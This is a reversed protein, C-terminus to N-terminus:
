KKGKGNAPLVTPTDTAPTGNGPESPTEAEVSFLDAETLTYATPLPMGWGMSAIFKETMEPNLKGLDSERMAQAQKATEALTAVHTRAKSLCCQRARVKLGEFVLKAIADNSLGGLDVNWTITHDKPWEKSTMTRGEVKAMLKVVLAILASLLIEAANKVTSM